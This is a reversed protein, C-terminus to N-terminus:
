SHRGRWATSRLVLARWPTADRDRRWPSSRRPRRSTRHRPAPAPRSAARGTVARAQDIGEADDDPRQERQHLAPYAEEAGARGDDHQERQAEEDADRFCRRKGGVGADDRSPKRAILAAGRRGEEIRPLIERGHDERRQHAPDRVGIAPAEHEEHHPREADDHTEDPDLGDIARLLMRRDVLGLEVVDPVATRQDIEIRGPVIQLLLSRRLGAGPPIVDALQEGVAHHEADIM